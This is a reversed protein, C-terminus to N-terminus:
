PSPQSQCTSVGAVPIHFYLLRLSPAPGHGAETWSFLSTARLAFDGGNGNGRRRSGSVKREEGVREQGRDSEMGPSKEMM